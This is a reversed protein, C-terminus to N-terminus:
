WRSGARYEGSAIMQQAIRTRQVADSDSDGNGNGRESSLWLSPSFAGTRGFVEPYRWGINLANAAGLSWGLITRGDPRTRTRYDSDISPVLTNVLWESYAQSQAGVAGYRTQAILSRKAQRDSFGYAAMRDSPMDIAVAITPAIDGSAILANLTSQLAIADADQGDNLYLVPYGIRSGPDYGPPVFVRVRVGAVDVGPILMQRTDVWGTDYPSSERAASEADAARAADNDRVQPAISACSCLMLLLLWCSPRLKM